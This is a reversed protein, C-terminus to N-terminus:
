WGDNDEGADEQIDHARYSARQKDTKMKQLRFKSYEMGAGHDQMQSLRRDYESSEDGSQDLKEEQEKDMDAKSLMVM